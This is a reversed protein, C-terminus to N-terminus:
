RRRLVGGWKLKRRVLDYFNYGETVILNTVRPSRGLIIQEGNRVACHQQGDITVLTEHGEDVVEVTCTESSSVVVPRVSLSHPYLPTIIFAELNSPNIIPGGASLSYATSGTPTSVIVGDALYEGLMVSDIMTKIHLVRSVGVGHIVVE